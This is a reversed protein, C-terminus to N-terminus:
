SAAPCSIGESTCAATLRPSIKSRSTVTKLRAKVSSPTWVSETSSRARLGAGTFWNTNSM